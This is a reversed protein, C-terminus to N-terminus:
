EDPTKSLVDKAMKTYKRPVHGKKMRYTDWKLGILLRYKFLQTIIRIWLHSLELNIFDLVNRDLVIMWFLILVPLLYLM